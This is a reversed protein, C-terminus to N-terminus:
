MHHYKHSVNQAKRKALYKTMSEDNESQFREWARDAYYEVNQLQEDMERLDDPTAGAEAAAEQKKREQTLRIGQKFATHTMTMMKNYQDESDFVQGGIPVFTRLFYYWKEEAPHRKQLKSSADFWDLRSQGTPDAVGLAVNYATVFVDGVVARAIDSAMKGHNVPERNWTKQGMNLIDKMFMAGGLGMINLFDGFGPNKDAFYNFTAIRFKQIDEIDAQTYTEDVIGKTDLLNYIEPSYKRLQEPNERYEVIAENLVKKNPAVMNILARIASTAVGVMTSTGQFTSANSLDWVAILPLDAYEGEGQVERVIGNLYTQGRRALARMLGERDDGDMVAQQRILTLLTQKRYMHAAHQRLQKILVPISNTNAYDMGLLMRSVLGRKGPMDTSMFIWSPFASVLGAPIVRNSRLWRVWGPLMKPGFFMTLGSNASGKAILRSLEGHAYTKGGVGTFSGDSNKWLPTEDIGRLRLNYREGARVKGLMNEIDDIYKYIATDVKFVADGARYGKGMKERLWLYPGPLEHGKISFKNGMIAADADMWGDNILQSDEIYEWFQRMLTSAQEQGFLKVLKKPPNIVGKKYAAYKNYSSHARAIVSVPHRGETSSKLMVNSVYNGINTVIRMVTVNGGMFGFIKRMQSNDLQRLEDRLSREFTSLVGLTKTYPDPAHLDAMEAGLAGGMFTHSNMQRMYGAVEKSPVSYMGSFGVRLNYGLERVQKAAETVPIGKADALKQAYYATTKSEAGAIHRYLDDGKYPLALPYPNEKILVEEILSEAFQDLSATRFRASDLMLAKRELQQRTKRSIEHMVNNFAERKFREKLKVDDGIVDSIVNFLNIKTGNTLEIEPNSLRPLLSQDAFYRVVDNAQKLKLNYKKNFRLAHIVKRRLSASRLIQLSNEQLATTVALIVDDRTAVRAPLLATRLAPIEGKTPKHDARFLTRLSIESDLVDKIIPELKQLAEPSLTIKPRGSHPSQWTRRMEYITAATSRDYATYEGNADPKYRTEGKRIPVDGKRGGTYAFEAPVIGDDVWKDILMAGAKKDKLLKAVLATAGVNTEMLGKLEAASFGTLDNRLAKFDDLAIRKLWESSGGTKLATNIEDLVTRLDAPSKDLVKDYFDDLRREFDPIVDAYRKGLKSKIINLQLKKVGPASNVAYEHIEKALRAAKQSHPASLMRSLDSAKTIGLQKARGTAAYSNAANLIAKQDAGPVINAVKEAVHEATWTPNLIKPAYDVSGTAQYREGVTDFFLESLNGTRLADHLQNPNNDVLYSYASDIDRRLQKKTTLNPRDAWVQEFMADQIQKRNQPKTAEAYLRLDDAVIRSMRADPNAVAAYIDDTTKLNLRKARSSKLYQAVRDGTIAQQFKSATPIEAITAALNGHKETVVPPPLKPLDKQAVIVDEMAAPTRQARAGSGQIVEGAEEPGLMVDRQLATQKADFSYTPDTGKQKWWTYARQVNKAGPLKGAQTAVATKAGAVKADVAGALANYRPSKARAITSAGKAMRTGDFAIELGALPDARLMNGYGPIITRGISVAAGAVLGSLLNRAIREVEKPDKRMPLTVLTYLLNSVGVTRDSFGRDVREFVSLKLQSQEFAEMERNLRTFANVFEEGLDPPLISALQEAKEPTFYKDLLLSDMYTVYEPSDKASQNADVASKSETKTKRVLDSFGKYMGTAIAKATAISPGSISEHDGKPVFQEVHGIIENRAKNHRQLQEARRKIEKATKSKNPDSKAEEVIQEIPKNLVDPNILSMGDVDAGFFGVADDYREIDKTSLGGLKTATTLFQGYTKVEPPFYPKEDIKKEEPQEQENLVANARVPGLVAASKPLNYKPM